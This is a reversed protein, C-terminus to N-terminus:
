LVNVKYVIYEPIKRNKIKKFNQNGDWVLAQKSCIIANSHTATASFVDVIGQLIKQALTKDNNMRDSNKAPTQFWQIM